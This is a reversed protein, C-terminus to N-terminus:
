FSTWVGNKFYQATLLTTNYIMQGGQPSQIQDRQATTVHPLLIGFQTLYDILNQFFSSMSKVWEENMYNSGAKILPDNLPFQDFNNAM